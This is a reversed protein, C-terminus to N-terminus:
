TFYHLAEKNERYAMRHLLFTVEIRLGSAFRAGIDM